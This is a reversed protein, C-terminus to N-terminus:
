ILLTFKSYSDNSVSLVATLPCNNNLHDDNKTVTLEKIIEELM